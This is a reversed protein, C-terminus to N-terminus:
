LRLPQLKNSTQWVSVGITGHKSLSYTWCPSWSHIYRHIHTHLYIFIYFVYIYLYLINYIHIHEHIDLLLDTMRESLSTERSGRFKWFTMFVKAFCRRSIYNFDWWNKHTETDRRHWYCPESERSELSSLFCALQHSTLEYAFESDDLCVLLSKDINGKLELLWTHLEQSDCTWIVLTELWRLSCTQLEM